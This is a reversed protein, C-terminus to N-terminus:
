CVRREPGRYSAQEALWTRLQAASGGPHASLFAAARAAVQACGVSAGAVGTAGARVHGGFDAQSTNLFSLEGPACRADGTARIVGAYAAPFVPEGRAPAAAVLIVGQELARECAMRLSPRDERLGFSM